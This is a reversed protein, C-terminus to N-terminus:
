STAPENPLVILDIRHEHAYDLLSVATDAAALSDVKVSALLHGVYAQLGRLATFLGEEDMGENHGVHLLILESQARRTVDLLTDLCPEALFRNDFPLLLRQFRRKDPADLLQQASELPLCPILFVERRVRPATVSLSVM